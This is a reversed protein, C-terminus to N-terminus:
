VEPGLILKQHKCGLMVERTNTLYTIKATDDMNHRVIYNLPQKVYRAQTDLSYRCVQPSQTGRRGNQWTLDSNGEMNCAQTRALSAAYNSNLTTQKSNESYQRCCHQIVNTVLVRKSLIARVIMIIMAQYLISIVPMTQLQVPRSGVLACKGEEPNPFKVTTFEPDPDMQPLSLYFSLSFSLSLFISKTIDEEALSFQSVIHDRQCYWSDCNRLQMCIQQCDM